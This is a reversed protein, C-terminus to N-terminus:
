YTMNYLTYITMYGGLGAIRALASAGKEKSKQQEASVINWANSTAGTADNSHM